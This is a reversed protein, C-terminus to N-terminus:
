YSSPGKVVGGHSSNYAEFWDQAYTLYADSYSSRHKLVYEGWAIFCFTLAQGDGIYAGNAYNYESALLQKSLLDAKDSSNSGMIATAQLGTLGDYPELLLSGIFTTYADINDAGVQTGNLSQALAKDVNNKWYGITYGNAKMNGLAGFNLALGLNVDNASVAVITVIPSSKTATLGTPEVVDVEYTGPTVTFSYAGTTAASVATGVVQSNKYLKVSIGSLVPEDADRTGNVNADFFVVGSITLATPAPTVTLTGDVFLFRYNAAALTGQAAAIPYTGAPSTTIATTSLAPAGTLVSTNEGNVFGAITATLTPNALGYARSKNDATVTLPARTITLNANVFAFDYKASTLSGTSITIPYPSGAVSSSATATTSFAPTGNYATASTDSNVFGATTFSFAPNPAGYMRTADLATFTLKAKTVTLINEEFGFTYNAAALTGLSATIPYAGPLSASTAPTSVTAVGSVVTASDGNVFGTILYDLPPVPAGYVKTAAKPTVTLPAPTVALTGDVFAFRYNNSALSGLAATIPYSGVGSTTTATTALAPTGTVDSTALTDGGVFGTIVYTLAPNAAGYLKSKNEATVTLPAKLINITFTQSTEAAGYENTTRVWLTHQGGTILDLNTSGTATTTFMGSKSFTVSAGDLKAELTQITSGSPTSGTFTFPIDVPATGYLHDYTANPAPTNIVVTPPPGNVVVKFKSTATAVGSANAGHVTITYDGPAAIPMNAKGTAQLTGIGTLESLILENNNLTADVSLISMPSLTDAVFQMPITTPLQTVQYTFVSGDAPTSITVVPPADAAPQPTTLKANLSFGGNTVAVGWGVAFINYSFLLPTGPPVSSFKPVSFTITVTKVDRPGAFSVLSPSVTVYSKATATDVIPLGNVMPITTPVIDFTVNVGSVLNSPATITVNVSETYPLNGEANFSFPSYYVSAARAASAAITALAFFFLTRAAHSLRIHSTTM